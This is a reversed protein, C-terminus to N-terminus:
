EGGDNAGREPEAARAVPSRAAPTDRPDVGADEAQKRAEDRLDEHSLEGSESELHPGPIESTGDVATGSYLGEDPDFDITSTDVFSQSEDSRDLGFTGEADGGAGSEPSQQETAM